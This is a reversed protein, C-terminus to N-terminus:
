LYLFFGLKQQVKEVTQFGGRAAKEKEGFMGIERVAVTPAAM